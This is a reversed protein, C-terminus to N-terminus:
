RFGPFVDRTYTYHIFCADGFAGQTMQVASISSLVDIRSVRTRVYFWAHNKFRNTELVLLVM